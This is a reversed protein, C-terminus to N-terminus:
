SASPRIFAIYWILIITLGRPNILWKSRDLVLVLSLLDLWHWCNNLFLYTLFFLLFLNRLMRCFFSWLCCRFSFKLNSLCIPVRSLQFWEFIVPIFSETDSLALMVVFHMREISLVKIFLRFLLWGAEPDPICARHILERTNSLKACLNMWFSLLKIIGRFLWIFIDFFYHIFESSWNIECFALGTSEGWGFLMKLQCCAPCIIKCDHFASTVLLPVFSLFLKKIFWHKDMLLFCTAFRSCIEQLRHFHVMTDCWNSWDLLANIQNSSKLILLLISYKLRSGLRHIWTEAWIIIASNWVQTLICTFSSEKWHPFFQVALRWISPIWCLLQFWLFSIVPSLLNEFINIIARLM